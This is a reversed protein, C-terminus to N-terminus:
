QTTTLLDDHLKDHQMLLHFGSVSYDCHSCTYRQRSGHLSVHCSLQSRKHTSYPCAHCRWTKRRQILTSSQEEAAVGDVDSNDVPQFPTMPWLREMVGGGRGSAQAPSSSWECANIFVSGFLSNASYATPLSPQRNSSSPVSLSEPRALSEAPSKDLVTDRCVPSTKEVAKNSSKDEEFTLETPSNSCFHGKILNYWDTGNSRQQPFQTADVFVSSPPRCSSSNVAYQQRLSWREAVWLDCSECSQQHHHLQRHYFFDNRNRSVNHCQGCRFRSVDNGSSLGSTCLSNSTSDGDFQFKNRSDQSAVELGDQRCLQNDTTYQQTAGRRGPQTDVGIMSSIEVDGLSFSAASVVQSSRNSMSDYGDGVEAAPGRQGVSQLSVDNSAVKLQHGKSKELHGGRPVFVFKKKAWTNMYDTLTAAADEPNMVSIQALGPEPHKHRIHRVVDSRFNSRYPCASCCFRKM